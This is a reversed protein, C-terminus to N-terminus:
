KKPAWWKRAAGTNHASQAVKGVSTKGKEYWKGLRTTRSDIADPNRGIGALYGVGVGTGSMGLKSPEGLASGYGFGKGSLIGKVIEAASPIFTFSFFSLMLWLLSDLSAGFAYPPNWTSGDSLNPDFILGVNGGIGVLDTLDNLIGMTMSLFMFALIWFLTMAPFVALNTILDKLWKGFGFGNSVVGSLLILPALIISAIISTYIKLSLIILKFFHIISYIIVVPIAVIGGILVFVGTIVGVVSLEGITNIAAMIYATIFMMMYYTYVTIIGLDMHPNTNAIRGNVLFNYADFVNTQMVGSANFILFVIAISVNMLDIMLGAIAFSFTIFILAFAIKPIASQATIVLQPSVKIRFMIMFALIISALVILAYSADRTAKWLNQIPGGDFANFGFGDQAYAPTIQLKNLKGHIYKIGSIPTSTYYEALYNREKQNTNTGIVNGIGNIYEEFAGLCECFVSLWYGRATGAV